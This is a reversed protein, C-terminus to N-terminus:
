DVDRGRKIGGKRDPANKLHTACVEDFNFETGVFLKLASEKLIAYLKLLTFGFKGRTGHMNFHSMLKNTLLRQLARRIFDAFHAGGINELQGLLKEKESSEKELKDEFEQLEEITDVQEIPEVTERNRRCILDKIEMLNHLVKKQFKADPLPFPDTSRQSPEISDERFKSSSMSPSQM